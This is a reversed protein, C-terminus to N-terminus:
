MVMLTMTTSNINSMILGYRIVYCRIGWEIVMVDSFEALVGLSREFRLGEM